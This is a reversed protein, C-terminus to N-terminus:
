LKYKRSILKLPLELFINFSESVYPRLKILTSKRYIKFANTFDNYDSLFFLKVFNNFVRNLILKTIPYDIVGSGKIFRSGIIADYDSENITKYYNKLDEISDSLDAMLIVIYDGMSKEIGLEIM